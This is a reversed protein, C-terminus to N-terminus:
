LILGSVAGAAVLGLVFRKFAAEPIKGFCLIGCGTGLLYFPLVLAAFLVTSETFLGAIWHSPISFVILGVFFMIVNARLRAGPVQAALWGLIVPPGPLSVAGQLLGALFGTVCTRARSPTGSIKFGALLAVASLLVIVSVGIKMDSPDIVLLSWIGAPVGIIAALSLLGVERREFDRWAGRALWFTVPLDILAILPVAVRVGLIASTVPMMVLGVGFGALGRAVGAAFAIAFVAWLGETQALEILRDIVPEAM